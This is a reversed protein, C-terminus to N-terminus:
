PCKDELCLGVVLIGDKERDSPPYGVVQNKLFCNGAKGLAEVSATRNVAWQPMFSAGVCEKANLEDGQLDDGGTNPVCLETGRARNDNWTGCAEICDSMTPALFAVMDSGPWDVNCYKRYSMRTFESQITRGSEDPCGTEPLAIYTTRNQTEGTSNTCTTPASPQQGSASASPLPSSTTSPQKNETIAKGIFGGILGSIVAIL